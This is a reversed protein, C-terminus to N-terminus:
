PAVAGLDRNEKDETRLQIQQVGGRFSIGPYAVSRLTSACEQLWQQLPFDILIIYQSHTNTAKPIYCTTRMRRLINDYTVQRVKGHKEM